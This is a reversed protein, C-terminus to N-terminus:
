PAPATREEGHAVSWWILVLALNRLELSRSRRRLLWGADLGGRSGSEFGSQVLPGHREEFHDQARIVRGLERERRRKGSHAEPRLGGAASERNGVDDDEREGVRRKEDPQHQEEKAGVALARALEEEAIPRDGRFRAVAQREDERRQEDPDRHQHRYLLERGRQV